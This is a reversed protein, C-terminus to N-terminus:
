KGVKPFNSIAKYVTSESVFFRSAIRRIVRRKVKIPAAEVINKWYENRKRLREDRTLDCIEKNM